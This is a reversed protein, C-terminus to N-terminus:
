KTWRHLQTSLVFFPVVVVACVLFPLYALTSPLAAFMVGLLLPGIASAVAATAQVVSMRRGQDSHEGEDSDNQLMALLIPGGVSALSGMPVVLAFVPWKSANVTPILVLQLLLMLLSLAVIKVNSLFRQLLPLVVLVCIPETLSMEVQLYAFDNSGFDSKQNLYFFLITNIGSLAFQFCCNIAVCAAFCKSKMLTLLVVCPNLRVRDAENAKGAMTAPKRKALTEPVCVFSYIVSSVAGGLGIYACLRENIMTALLVVLSSLSGIASLAALIRVRADRGYVDAASATVFSTQLISALGSLVMYIIITHPFAVVASIQVVNAASSVIFFPKRGTADMVGGYMGSVLIVVLGVCCTIIGQVLAADSDSHSFFDKKLGVLYPRVMNSISVTFIWGSLVFLHKYTSWCSLSPERVLPLRDRHITDGNLLRDGEASM